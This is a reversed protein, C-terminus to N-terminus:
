TTRHIFCFIQLVVVAIADASGIECGEEIKLNFSYQASNELAMINLHLVTLGLDELAVIANLLLGARRPCEVKLNVHNQIVTVHVEVGGSKRVATFEYSRRVNIGETTCNGLEGIESKMNGLQCTQPSSTALIGTTTSSSSSTSTSTTESSGGCGGSQDLLDSKKLRKQAQLSQHLQELEKVYDIAGGVISAQDGRQIYSSPMLSRLATLHDNMLRRRNREVAIHTMRQSEVEEKNKASPRTRKVRKRKQGKGAAAEVPREELEVAKSGDHQNGDSNAGGEVYIASHTNRLDMTESKVPSIQVEVADHTLCDQQGKFRGGGSCETLEPSYQHHHHHHSHSGEWPPKKFQQLSLLAQFSLECFPSFAPSDGGHLMELFPIRMEEFSSDSPSGFGLKRITNNSTEQELCEMDVDLHEEEEEELFCPNIPGQLRGEM